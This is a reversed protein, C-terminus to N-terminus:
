IAIDLDSQVELRDDDTCMSAGVERNPKFEADM